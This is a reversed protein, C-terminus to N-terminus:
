AKTTARVPAVVGAANDRPIVTAITHALDLKVDQITMRDALWAHIDFLWVKGIIGAVIADQLTPPEEAGHTAWSIIEVMITGVRDVDEAVSTDAGMFARVMAASLQRNRGLAETVGVIVSLVREQAMEPGVGRVRVADRMATLERGMAAVLLHKKSPFYRYLTGLAVGAREAVERMQVADYGGDALELAAALIREQRARQSPTTAPDAALVLGLKAAM